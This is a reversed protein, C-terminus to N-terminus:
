PGTRRADAYAEALDRDSAIRDMLEVFDTRSMGRQALACDADTPSKWIADALRAARKVENPMVRRQDVSCDEQSQIVQFAAPIAVLSVIVAFGLMWGFARLKSSM